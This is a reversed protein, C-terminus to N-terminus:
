PPVPRRGKSMLSISAQESPPPPLQVTATATATEKPKSNPVPVPVPVPLPLWIPSSVSFSITPQVISPHRAWQAGREHTCSLSQYDRYLLRLHAHPLFLLSITVGSGGMLAMEWRGDGMEWRGEDGDQDMGRSM